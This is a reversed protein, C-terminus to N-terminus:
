ALSNRSLTKSPRASGSLSSSAVLSVCQDSCPRNSDRHTSGDTTQLRSLMYGTYLLPQDHSSVCAHGGVRLCCGRPDAFASTLITASYRIGCGGRANPNVRRRDGLLLLYIWCIVIGYGHRYLLSAASYRVNGRCQRPFRKESQLKGFIGRGRDRPPRYGLSHGCTRFPDRQKRLPSWPFLSVFAWKATM